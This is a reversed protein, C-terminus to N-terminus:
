WTVGMSKELAIWWEPEPAGALFQSFCYWALALWPISYFFFKQFMGYWQLFQMYSFQIDAKDDDNM